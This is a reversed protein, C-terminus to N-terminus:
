RHHVAGQTQRCPRGPADQHRDVGANRAGDDIGVKDIVTAALQTIPMTHPRIVEEQAMWEVAMAEALTESSVVLPKGLPTKVPRGDLVVSYGSEFIAAAATRYFRKATFAM